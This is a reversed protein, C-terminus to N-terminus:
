SSSPLQHRIIMSGSCSQDVRRPRIGVAGCKRLTRFETGAQWSTELEMSERDSDALLVCIRAPVIRDSSNAPMLHDLLFLLVFHAWSASLSASSDTRLLKKLARRAM